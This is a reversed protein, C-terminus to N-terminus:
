ALINLPSSSSGGAGVGAGGVTIKDYLPKYLACKQDLLQSDLTRFPQKGDTTTGAQVGDGFVGINPIQEWGPGCSPDKAFDAWAKQMVQSVQRQFNTANSDHFTGFVEWIEAAHYPGSSNFIETDPFSANFLYRWTDIGVSSSDNAWFTMPCHMLVDTIILSLQDNETHAGPSGLPYQQLISDIVTDNIGSFGLSKLAKKTDNQGVIFPKAEAANYGILVPVRAIASSKTTSQLRALRPATSYTINGDPVPRFLLNSKEILRKIDSAPLARLCELAGDMSCNALM